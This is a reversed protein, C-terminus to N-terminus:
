YAFENKEIVLEKVEIPKTLIKIENTGFRLYEIISKIEDRKISMTEGNLRFDLVEKDFDGYMVIDIIDNFSNLNFKYIQQDNYYIKNVSYAVKYFGSTELELSNKVNNLVNKPIEATIKNYKSTCQPNHNAIIYGNVNVKIAESVEKLEDCTIALDIYVRELFNMNEIEFNFDRYNNEKNQSMEAIKFDTFDIKNWTFLQYWNPKEIELSLKLHTFNQPNKINLPIKLPLDSERALTRIIEQNNAKIIIQNDGSLRKPNFYILLSNTNEPESLSVDVEYVNKGFPNAKLRFSNGIYVINSVEKSGLEINPFSETIKQQRGIETNNLYFLYTQQPFENNKSNDKHYNTNKNVQISSEFFFSGAFLLIAMIIIAIGIENIAKKNRNM